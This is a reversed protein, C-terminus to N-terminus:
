QTVEMASISIVVRDQALTYTERDLGSKELMVFQLRFESQDRDWCSQAVRVAEQVSAAIRAFRRDSAACRFRPEGGNGSRESICVVEGSLRAARLLNPYRPLVLHAVCGLGTSQAALPMALLLLAVLRM